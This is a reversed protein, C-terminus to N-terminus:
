SRPPRSGTVLTAWYRTFTQVIQDMRALELAKSEELPERCNREIIRKVARHAGATSMGVRKGIEVYGLGQGRLQACEM